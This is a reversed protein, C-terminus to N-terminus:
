LENQGCHIIMHQISDYLKAIVPFGLCSHTPVSHSRDFLKLCLATTCNHCLNIQKNIKENSIESWGAMMVRM